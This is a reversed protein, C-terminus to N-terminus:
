RFSASWTKIDTTHTHQKHSPVEAQLTVGLNKSSHLFIRNKTNFYCTKRLHYKYRIQVNSHIENRTPSVKVKQKSLTVKFIPKKLLIHYLQQNIRNYYDNQYSFIAICGLKLVFRGSVIHHELNTNQGVGLMQFICRYKSKEYAFVYEVLGLSKM